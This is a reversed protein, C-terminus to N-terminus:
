DDYDRLIFGNQINEWIIKNKKRYVGMKKFDLELIDFKHGINNGINIIDQYNIDNRVKIIAIDIDSHENYTGNSFSGFLIMKNKTVSTIGSSLVFARGFFKMLDLNIPSKILKYFVYRGVAKTELFKDRHLARLIKIATPKSIKVQKYLNTLTIEADPHLLFFEIIKWEKSQRLVNLM